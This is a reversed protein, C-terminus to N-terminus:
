RADPETKLVEKVVATAKRAVATEGTMGSPANPMKEAIAMM